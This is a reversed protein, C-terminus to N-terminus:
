FVRPGELLGGFLGQHPSKTVAKRRFTKTPIGVLICIKRLRSFRSWWYGMTAPVGALNMRRIPQAAVTAVPAPTGDSLLKLPLVIFDAAEDYWELVMM